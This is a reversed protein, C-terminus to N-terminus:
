AAYRQAVPLPLSRPESTRRPSAEPAVTIRYTTVGGHGLAEYIKWFRCLEAAVAEAVDDTDHWSNGGAVGRGESKEAEVNVYIV